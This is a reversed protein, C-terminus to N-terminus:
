TLVVKEHFYLIKQKYPFLSLRWHEILWVGFFLQTLGQCAHQHHNVVIPILQFSYLPIIAGVLPLIIQFLLNLKSFISSKFLLMKEPSYLM